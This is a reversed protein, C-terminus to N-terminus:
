VIGLPRRRRTIVIVAIAGGRIYLTRVGAGGGLVIYLIKFGIGGGLM